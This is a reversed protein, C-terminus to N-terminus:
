ELSVIAYPSYGFRAVPHFLLADIISVDYEGTIEIIGDNRTLQWTTSHGAACKVSRTVTTSMSYVCLSGPQNWEERWTIKIVSRTSFTPYTRHALKRRGFKDDPSPFEIMFPGLPEFDRM